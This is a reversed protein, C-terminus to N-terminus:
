GATDHFRVNNKSVAKSITELVVTNEITHFCVKEGETYQGNVYREVVYPM